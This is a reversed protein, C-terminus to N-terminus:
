KGGMAANTNARKRGDELSLRSNVESLLRAESQAQIKLLLEAVRAPEGAAHEELKKVAAEATEITKASSDVAARLKKEAAELENVKKQQDAQEKEADAVVKNQRNFYALEDKNLGKVKNATDKDIEAQNLGDGRLLDREDKTLDQGQEAKKSAAVLKAREQPNMDVFREQASKLRDREQQVKQKVAELGEREKNAKETASQLAKENAALKDQEIKLLKSAAGQAAKTQESAANKISDELEKRAAQLNDSATARQGLQILHGAPDQGNSQRVQNDIQNFAAQAENFRAQARDKQAAAIQAPTAGAATMQLDERKDSWDRVAKNTEAKRKEAEQYEDFTTLASQYSKALKDQHEKLEDHGTIWLKLGTRFDKSFISIIGILVASVAAAIAVLPALFAVIKVVIAKLAAVAGGMMGAIYAGIGGGAAGAVAGGAASGAVGAGASAKARAAAAAAAAVDAAAAAKSVATYALWIKRAGEVSDAIGKFIQVGSEFKAFLRIAAEMNQSTAVGALGIARGFAVAGEGLKKLGEVTDKSRREEAKALAETSKRLNNAATSQEKELKKAEVALKKAALAADDLAVKTKTIEQHQTKIIFNVERDAM